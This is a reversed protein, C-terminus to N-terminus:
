RVETPRTRIADRVIALIRRAGKRRVGHIQFPPDPKTDRPVIEIWRTPLLLGHLIGAFGLVVLLPGTVALTRGMLLAMVVIGCGVAAEGWRLQKRVVAQRMNAYPLEDVVTHDAADCSVPRGPLMTGRVRILGSIAM